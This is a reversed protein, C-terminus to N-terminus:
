NLDKVFNIDHHQMLYDRLMPRDIENLTVHFTISNICSSKEKKIKARKLFYPALIDYAIRNDEILAIIEDPIKKPVVNRHTTPFKHLGAYIRHKNEM